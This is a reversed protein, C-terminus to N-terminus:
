NMVEAEVQFGFGALQPPPLLPLLLLMCAVKRPQRHLPLLRISTVMLLHSSDIDALSNDGAVESGVAVFEAPVMLPQSYGQEMQWCLLSQWYSRESVWPFVRVWFSTQFILLLLRLVVLLPQREVRLPLKQKGVGAFDVFDIGFGEISGTENSNIQNDKKAKWVRRRKRKM